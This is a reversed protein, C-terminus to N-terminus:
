RTRRFDEIAQATPHAAKEAPTPEQGTRRREGYLWTWYASCLDADRDRRAIVDDAQFEFTPQANM